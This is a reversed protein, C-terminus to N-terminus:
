WAGVGGDWASAREGGACALRVDIAETADIADVIRVAIADVPTGPGFVDCVGEDKLLRAHADPVIGGVIVAPRDGSAALRALVARVLELHAGALSSVGLVDARWERALRVADDPTSFLPGLAVDFGADALAAAVTKAGRDHGDQGLKALLVRPKRGLRAGLAAVRECATRWAGDQSRERGYVGDSFRAVSRAHADDRPWAAELAQTCEGLTARARVCDITLALLNADGRAGETLATLARRVRTEDRTAKLEEIRRLQLARVRRGDIERCAVREDDDAAQFRNVGVIVHSGDDIRAQAAVASEHIWRHVDGSRLAALVGGAADIKALTARARAAVDATLSEMMYSGAWPDVTDCVGTEHQLILQTDRALRAADRGPLALAEDYANTHLSQTGGFVAAMAEITTRVINNEPQQAALTLGSTQCHMRLALAKRSRAGLRHAIESWLLRAARLKAIEGFFDRGVGFFFSLRSCCDDASMGRALLTEVYTRANALTLALELVADAGAEQLHYGSISMANFRPVHAALHEVVDAAIRLSPEPAFIWTNRVMYEKLIDNQITGSLQAAPVGREGAAVIFAALVPLVAGSMTMSVSVRDLAIGDFLRAMDDVSDIAVGAMGVDARAAPHDSDYGRHTPLDFAVSLGQAGGDLATRFALNSDAADAYGAYQRITWPRGTYMSPYPGRVFPAAGPAGGLHAIGDLDDSTYLPKLPVARDLPRHADDHVDHKKM